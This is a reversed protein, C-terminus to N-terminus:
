DRPRGFLYTKNEERRLLRKINKHHTILLAMSIAISFVIMQLSQNHFILIVLPPYVLAALISGLSVYNTIILTLLFVGICILAPWPLIAIAVGLLTAVGKGGKFRAFVPFVHGILAAVGLLMEVWQHGFPLWGAHMGIFYLKVALWGKFVDFVLVPIGASRGLVRFTNTAGANGSGHERVDLGYFLKGIWVSSPISGVLYAMGMLMIIKYVDM